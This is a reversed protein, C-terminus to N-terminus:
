AGGAPTTAPMGVAAVLLAAIESAPVVFDVPGAALAARPMVDVEADAPAQVIALGGRARVRQLGQAGDASAGSLLVGALLDGFVAAASELTVDISPRSFHLKADVALAVRGDPEVLLHYNAPALSLTGPLLPEGPEPERVPLRCHAQLTATLEGGQHRHRHLVLLLAAGFGAPLAPLIRALAALGGASAGLVVARRRPPKV